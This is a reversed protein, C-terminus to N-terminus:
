LPLPDPRTPRPLARAALTARLERNSGLPWAYVHCGPHPVRRFPGERLARAAYTAGSEHPRRAPAGLRRLENEVHDRGRDDTRLKSLSRENVVVGGPAVILTRARGRGLYYGNHAGYIHGYHGPKVLDGTPGIRPVPDSYALVTELHPKARRLAEFARALLWTEGNGEVVDLLVFRGLLLGRNAPLGTWHPVVGQHTPVSFVAVGALRARHFPETRYLAVRFVASPFSHSYHHERVFAKAADRDLLETGHRRPDITEGAPRYSTRGRNWRQCLPLALQAATM